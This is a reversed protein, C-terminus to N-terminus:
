WEQVRLCGTPCVEVCSLCGHCNGADALVPQDDVMEYVVRPCIVACRACGTCDDYDITIAYM